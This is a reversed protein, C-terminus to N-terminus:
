CEKYGCDSCRLCGQQTILSAQRCRPCFDGTTAVQHLNGNRSIAVEAPQLTLNGENGIVTELWRSLARAVGDPVSRVRESRFGSFRSGGIHELQDIVERLREERTMPSPLRLILSLLRGIAEVDAELDSGAKGLRVFVEFPERPNGNAYNITVFATGFPTRERTTVGNLSAPRPTVKAPVIKVAQRKAQKETLLIGERSGERYVTVGKLGQEWALRYIRDVIELSTDKPLNITSSIAQDIHRQLVSQMLVRKEPAITHATVFHAPLSDESRSESIKRYEAILPHEVEFVSEFLSESRRIYKVDFIPEIGSTVGAMAAISGTPPITLLTINRLGNKEIKELLEPPFDKFFPNELHKAANFVPFPGKEAAINASEDYAWLKIKEVTKEAFDIGEDSDYRLKLKCLMDALGMIGLGIRRGKLASEEQGSLPHRGENWFLVNDLFRVGYRTAKEVSAFDLKPNPTHPDKVFAALNISGICCDGYPELSEEACPNASVVGLGPYRDSSSYRQITNWFLCGPEAWDRAGITLENWLERAQITREVEIRDDVNEYHLLWEDDHEVARMFSDTVRVSINAYRVSIRNRKIRCFDLVDPHSDSITIMLAGRRGQQGIIGTTLSYLEIFSVAGTSVRAANHAPCDKPRLTSIDVGCGGGRKFTEALESATKYIGQISDHPSPAVYCQRTLYGRGITMSHTQPEVCCFVNEQLGTEQVDLVKTWVKHKTQRSDAHNKRHDSRLIDEASVTDHFILLRYCPRPSGDFPSKERIKVAPSAYMGIVPLVEERLLTLFNEDSQDIGLTGHGTCFGDTAIMGCIFGYWYSPSVKEPIAKYNLPLNRVELFPKDKYTHHGKPYNGFWRELDIKPGFLRVSSHTPPKSHNSAHSGDGYVIGHRVGEIFDQNKEPRPRMNLPVSRGKLRTTPVITVNSGSTAIWHHGPTAYFVDGNELTVAMFPQKGFCTFLAERYLGGESLVRHRGELIEIPFIGNETHVPTGARFCNLATVKNPNGIAHLIRGGPVFRFDSLLWFFNREWEKRREEKELALGRAVRRWMEQPTKELIENEESRLAYKEYFIRARLSDNDFAALTESPLLTVRNDSV